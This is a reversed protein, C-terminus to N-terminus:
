TPYLDEVGQTERMRTGDRQDREFMLKRLLQVPRAAFRLLVSACVVQDVNLQDNGLSLDIEKRDLPYAKHKITLAFLLVPGRKHRLMLVPLCEIVFLTATEIDEIGDVARNLKHVIEDALNIFGSNFTGNQM